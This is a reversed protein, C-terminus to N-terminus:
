IAPQHNRCRTPGDSRAAALGDHSQDDCDGGAAHGPQMSDSFPWCRTACSRWVHIAAIGPIRATSRFIPWTRAPRGSLVIVRTSLFLAEEVDHTVLLATFGARQWLSVLEGHM